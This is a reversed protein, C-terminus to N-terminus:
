EAVWVTWDGAANQAKIAERCRDCSSCATARRHPLKAGPCLPDESCAIVGVHRQVHGPCSLTTARNDPDAAAWRQEYKVADWRCQRRLHFTVPPGAISEMNEDFTITKQRATIPEDCSPCVGSIEYRAAKASATASLSAAMEERCPVPESCRSCVPYHGTPYTEFGGYSAAALSLHVDHDRSRPDDATIHVPRIIIRWPQNRLRYEPKYHSLRERDENKWDIEPVAGSEIVRWAAHRWAIIQGAAPQRERRTGLPRWAYPLEDPVRV